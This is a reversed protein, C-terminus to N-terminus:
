LGARRCRHASDTDLFGHVAERNHQLSRGFREVFTKASLGGNFRHDVIKGSPNQGIRADVLFEGLGIGRTGEAEAARISRAVPAAQGQSAGASLLATQAIREVEDLSIRM